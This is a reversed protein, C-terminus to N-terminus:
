KELGAILTATALGDSTGSGIALYEIEDLYPKAERFDEADDAPILDSALGLAAPGDSRFLTTYPLLKSRPPRRNM